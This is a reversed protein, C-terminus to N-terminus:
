PRTAQDILERVTRRYLAVDSRILGFHGAGPFEVVRAKGPINAAIARAEALTAM